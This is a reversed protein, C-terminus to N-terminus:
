VRRSSRCVAFLALGLLLVVVVSEFTYSRGGEKREIGGGQQALTLGVPDGALAPEGALLLGGTLVAARTGVSHLGAISAQRLTTHM